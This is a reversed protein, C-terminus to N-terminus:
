PSNSTENELQLEITVNNRFCFKRRLCCSYIIATQAHIIHLYSGKHVFLLTHYLTLKCLLNQPIKMNANVCLLKQPQAPVAQLTLAKFVGSLFSNDSRAPTKKIRAHIVKQVFTNLSLYCYYRLAPNATM